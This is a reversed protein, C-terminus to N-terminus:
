ETRAHEQVLLYIKNLYDKITVNLMIDLKIIEESMEEMKIEMKKFRDVNLEKTGSTKSPLKEVKIQIKNLRDNLISYNQNTKQVYEILRQHLELIQERYNLPGDLADM